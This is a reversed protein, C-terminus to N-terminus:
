WEQVPPQPPDPLREVDIKGRMALLEERTLRRRPALARLAHDVAETMTRYGYRRMIAEVYDMEIVINTRKRM